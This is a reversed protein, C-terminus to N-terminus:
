LCYFLWTFCIKKKCGSPHALYAVHKDSAPVYKVKNNGEPCDPCYIKRGEYTDATVKKRTICDLASISM